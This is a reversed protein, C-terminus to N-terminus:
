RRAVVQRGSLWDGYDAFALAPAREVSQVPPEHREPRLVGRDAAPEDVRPEFAEGVLRRKAFGPRAAAAQHRRAAEVFPALRFAPTFAGIEDRRANGFRQERESSKPLAPARRAALSEFSTHDHRGFRTGLECPDM